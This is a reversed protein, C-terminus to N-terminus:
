MKKRWWVLNLDVELQEPVNGLIRVITSIQHYPGQYLFMALIDSHM